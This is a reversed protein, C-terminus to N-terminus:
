ERCARKFADVDAQGEAADYGESYGDLWAEANVVTMTKDNVRVVSGLWEAPVDLAAARKMVREARPTM